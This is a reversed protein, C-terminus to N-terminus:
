LLHPHLRLKWLDVKGGFQAENIRRLASVADVSGQWGCRHWKLTESLKLMLAGCWPCGPGYM